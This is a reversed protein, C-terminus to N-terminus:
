SAATALQLSLVQSTSDEGMSVGYIADGAEITTRNHSIVVFQSRESLERLTEVFRGVNTDDLAADVEDLVVMPAPNVALLSFLLAVSTMSREGGSLVNLNAVRKGPPQAVIEVGPEGEPEEDDVLLTLEARGGGFFRAFYEKFHGNVLEFTEIFRERIRQRLERIAERLEAESDRLDAMQDTLFEHRQGQEDLDALAEINVPGLARISAKLEAIRAWLAEGHPPSAGEHAAPESPELAAPDDGTVHGTPADSASAGGSPVVRGDALLVMEEEELQALLRRLRQQQERAASESALLGREAALLTPQMQDRSDTLERQEREHDALASRAPEVAEQALSLAGIRSALRQRYDELSLELDQQERVLADRQTRERGVREAERAREEEDQRQRSEAAHLEARRAFLATTAEEVRGAAADREATVSNARDRLREISEEVSSLSALADALRVHSLAARAEEGGGEDLLPRLSRLEALAQGFIRRERGREQEAARASADAQEVAARASAVRVRAEKVAQERREHDTRAEAHAAAAAEHEEPLADLERRLAFQEARGTGRGGYLSGDARLLLGDRTVVSGLGRRIMRHATNLDRVVIVRGLLTNVLPRYRTETRVLRAAVGVVGREGFINLSRVHELGDLPYITASGGDQRRLYELAALADAEREVVVAGVQEALAAEIAAEMGDPVQILRSLLGVIGTLSAGPQGAEAPRGADLPRSETPRSDAAEVVSRAGGQASELRETLQELLRQREGLATLRTARERLRHAAREQQVHAEDLAAEAADRRVRQERQRGALRLMLGRRRPSRGRYARVEGALQAFREAAATRQQEEEAREDAQEAIRRESDDRDGELRARRVELEALERLVTHTAGDAAALAERQRVLEERGAEALATLSAVSGDDPREAVAASSASALSAKLESRREAILELRQEALAVTQQLRLREEALERERQRTRELSARQEAILGSMQGLREALVTAASRAVSVELTSQDRVEETVRQGERAGAIERSLYQQLTWSLESRLAQHREAKRSQRELQKLRPELEAVLIRVHGLNDRAEVLRREALTLQQRHRGLEAAEEILIRRETPRLALVEDVLGQSMHAYSNQGVQARRFLDVVDARRVQQGNIRYENQGSRHARRTVAVENFAIPMWGESNDLTLTVEAMGLQRRKSSGSFIVDETRRARLQRTSQEGLAWRIADAVNSKGSGNPGVIVSIGPGFEFRQREAFAKFGDVELRRLYM